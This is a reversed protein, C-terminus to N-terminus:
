DAQWSYKHFDVVEKDHYGALGRCWESIKFGSCIPTRAGIYNPIATKRVLEYIAIYEHTNTWLTKIPQSWLSSLLIARYTAPSRLPLPTSTWMTDM